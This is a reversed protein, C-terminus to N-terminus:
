RPPTVPTSRLAAQADPMTARRVFDLTQEIIQRTAANADRGEFGHHGTPHNVLTVPANQSLALASLRAIDANTRPSDLGARVWFIPLDPRFTGVNGAGYYVVAAKISTQRPDEVAPLAAWTAGSEAFVAIRGADIGYEPAHAVLYEV